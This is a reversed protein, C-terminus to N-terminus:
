KQRLEIKHYQVTKNRARYEEIGKLHYGELEMVDALELVTKVGTANMKLIENVHLGDLRSVYSSSRNNISRYGIGFYNDFLSRVRGSLHYKGFLDEVSMHLGYEATLENLYNKEATGELKTGYQQSLATVQLRLDRQLAGRREVTQEDSPLGYYQRERERIDTADTLFAIIIDLTEPSREM